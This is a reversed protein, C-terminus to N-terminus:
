NPMAQSGQVQLAQRLANLTDSLKRTWNTPLIHRRAYHRKRLLTWARNADERGIPCYRIYCQPLRICRTAGEGILYARQM